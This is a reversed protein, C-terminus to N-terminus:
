DLLEDTFVIGINTATTVGYATSTIFIYHIYKKSKKINYLMIRVFFARLLTKNTIKKLSMKINVIELVM